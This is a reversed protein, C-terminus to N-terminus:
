VTRLNRTFQNRHSECCGSGGCELKKLVTPVGVCGGREVLGLQQAIAGVEEAGVEADGVKGASVGAGLDHIGVREGTLGDFDEPDFAGAAIEAAHLAGAEGSEVLLLQEGELVAVFADVGFVVHDGHIREAGEAAVGDGGGDVRRQVAEQGKGVDIMEVGVPTDSQGGGGVAFGFHLLEVAGETVGEDPKWPLTGAELQAQHHAANDTFVGAAVADDEAAVAEEGPALGLALAVEVGEADDVADAM